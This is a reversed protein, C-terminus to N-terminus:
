RKSIPVFERLDPGIYIQRPRNLGSKRRWAEAWHSIWGPMRGIAFMVTFMNEPIGIARLLLGSYFDVNPYLKREIFYEDHLAIEELEAAISLLPDTHGLSDLLDDCVKKLLVVRPDFNKYVRHGFGWLLEEKKKVKEIVKAVTEGNVNIRKLMRLVRTNAGGHLPGWLASVAAATSTFLNAGSSGVMRATSTSCNQEHDAHLIFFVEMARRVEPLPEYDAYPLSFMMHLFNNVYGRKPDPHVIPDGKATKYTYAAITRVKSLLTAAAELLHDEETIKLLEPHYCSASNIMASLIAMPHATSPFGEFHHRLGEHLRANNTLLESFEDLESKSPAQGNILMLSVEPFSAEKAVQEIPFGLYRLIGKEGDIFTIESECAGTNKYGRDLTIYGTQNRLQRIDIAREGFTGELIPLEFTGEPLELKAAGIVKSIEKVKSDRGM